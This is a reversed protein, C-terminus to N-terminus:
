RSRAFGFAHMAAAAVVGLSSFRHTQYLIEQWHTDCGLMPLTASIIVVLGFALMAWFLLKQVASFTGSTDTFRSRHACTLAVATLGIAFLPAASCHLMLFWFPMAGNWGLMPVLGTLATGCLGLLMAAYALRTFRGLRAASRTDLTMTSM